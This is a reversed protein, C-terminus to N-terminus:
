QWGFVSLDNVRRTRCVAGAVSGPVCVTLELHRPSDGQPRDRRFTEPRRYVQDVLHGLLGPGVLGGFSGGSCRVRGRGHDNVVVPAAV